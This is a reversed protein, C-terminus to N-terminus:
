TGPAVAVSAVFARHDSGPVDVDEITTPVLGDVLAHDIRVFAPLPLDNPWSAACGEGLWEHVDHFGTGDLMDRYAPHWRSANFDGIVMTPLTTGTLEDHVAELDTEWNGLDDQDVGAKAHVVLVRVETGDLDVVADVAPSTGLVRTSARLIPVRSYLVVGDRDRDVSGARFPYREDVGAERLAAVQRPTVEVLGLLDADLAMLTVAAEEHRESEFYVNSFTVRMSPAGDPVDPPSGHFLLPAALVILAVVLGGHVATPWWRRRWAAVAAIPLSPALVFPTLAQLVYVVSVPSWGVAQTLGLVGAVSTWAWLLPAAARRWWVIPRADPSPETVLQAPRDAM